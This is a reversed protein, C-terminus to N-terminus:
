RVARSGADANAVYARLAANIREQYDRGQRRFWEILDADLTLRIAKQEAPLTHRQPPAEDPTDIAAELEDDSMLRILKGNWTPEPQRPAHSRRTLRPM